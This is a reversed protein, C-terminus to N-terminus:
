ERSQKDVMFRVCQGLFSGRGECRSTPSYGDTGHCRWCVPHVATPGTEDQEIYASCLITSLSSLLKIPLPSSPAHLLPVLQDNPNLNTERPRFQSSIKIFCPPGRKSPFKPLPNPRFSCVIM